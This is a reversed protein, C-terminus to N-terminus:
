RICKLIMGDIGLDELRRREKLKKSFKFTQFLTIFFLHSFITIISFTHIALFRPLLFKPRMLEERSVKTINGFSYV